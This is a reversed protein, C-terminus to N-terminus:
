DEDKKRGMLELLDVFLNIMDLFVAAGVQVANATTRPLRQARNFDFVVYASFTLVAIWEGISRLPAGGGPPLLTGALQLFILGVVTTCLPGRWTELSKPYVIGAAGLLVTITLTAIAVRILSAAGYQNFFPGSFAGFCAASVGLGICAKGPRAGMAILHGVIAGAALSLFILVLEWTPLRFRARQIAAVMAEGMWAYILLAYVVTATITLNFVSPAIEHGAGCASWLRDTRPWLKGISTAPM